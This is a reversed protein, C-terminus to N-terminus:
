KFVDHDQKVIGKKIEFKSDFVAKIESIKCLENILIKLPEGIESWKSSKFLFEKFEYENKITLIEDGKFIEENILILQNANIQEYVNKYLSFGFKLKGFYKERRKQDNLLQNEDNKLQDMVEFSNELLEGLTKEKNNQIVGFEEITVKALYYIGYPLGGLMKDRLMLKKSDIEKQSVRDILFSIIASSVLGSGLSLVIEYWISQYPLVFYIIISGVVFLLGVVFLVLFLIFNKVKVGLIKRM